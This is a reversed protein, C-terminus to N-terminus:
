APSPSDGSSANTTKLQKLKQYLTSRSIGLAKATKVINDGHATLAQQIYLLEVQELTLSPSYALESPPPTKSDPQALQLFRDPLTEATVTDGSSFIVAHELINRLERINGPYAAAQLLTMAEKCISLEPRGHELGISKILATALAPIDEPHQRLPPIHLEVVNLRYYLDTRFTGDAVAQELDVNTACLIRVDCRIEQNGGLRQFTQEQLLRLLKVQLMPPMEGIEDLLITGGDAFEFKGKRM